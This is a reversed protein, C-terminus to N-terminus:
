GHAQDEKDLADAAMPEITGRKQLWHVVTWCLAAWGAGICWGALVDTPHHVGLYVRSVGVAITVLIALGLFFLKLRWSGHLSALLVGLTLFTVASLMAHGSPFSPTFVRAAHALEPRPRNFALKLANSLLVGGGVTLAVWLAAAGKQTMLLYALVALFVLGLVAYSGLATVDRAAEELWPPGLPDSLDAPNRLGRLVTEDFRGADGEIVEEAIFGFALLLLGALFIGGLLWLEPRNRWAWGAFGRALAVASKSGAEAM